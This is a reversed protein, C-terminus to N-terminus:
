PKRVMWVDGAYLDVATHPSLQLSRVQGLRSLCLRAAEDKFGGAAVDADDDDALAYQGPRFHCCAGALGPERCLYVGETSGHRM